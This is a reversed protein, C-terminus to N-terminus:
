LGGVWRNIPKNKMESYDVFGTVLRWNNILQVTCVASLIYVFYVNNNLKTEAVFKYSPGSEQKIERAQKSSDISYLVILKLYSSPNLQHRRGLVALRETSIRKTM